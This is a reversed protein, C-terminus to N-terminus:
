KNLKKKIDDLQSQLINLENKIYDLSEYTLSFKRAAGRDLLMLEFIIFAGIAIMNWDM